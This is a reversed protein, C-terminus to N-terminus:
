FTSPCLVQFFSGSLWPPPAGSEWELLEMDAEEPVTTLLDAYGIDSDDSLVKGLSPLSAVYCFSALAVAARALMYTCLEFRLEFRYM